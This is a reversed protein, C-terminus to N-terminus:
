TVNLPTVYLNIAHSVTKQEKKIKQKIINKTVLIFSM